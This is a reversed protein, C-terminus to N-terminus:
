KEDVTITSMIYPDAFEDGLSRFQKDDISVQTTDITLTVRKQLSPAINTFRIAEIEYVGARIRKTSILEMFLGLDFATRTNNIRDVHFYNLYLNYRPSGADSRGFDSVILRIQISQDKNAGLVISDKTRSIDILAAEESLSEITTTITANTTANITEAYIAMSMVSLVMFIIIKKM